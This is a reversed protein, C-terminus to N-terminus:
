GRGAAWSPLAGTALMVHSSSRCLVRGSPPIRRWLSVVPEWCFSMLLGALTKIPILVTRGSLAPRCCGGRVDMTVVWIFAPRKRRGDRSRRRGGRPKDQADIWADTEAENCLLATLAVPRGRDNRIVITMTFRVAKLRKAFRLKDPSLPRQYKQIGCPRFGGACISHHAPDGTRM